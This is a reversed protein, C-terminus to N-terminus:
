RHQLCSHALAIRRCISSVTHAALV